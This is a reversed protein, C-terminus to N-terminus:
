MTSLWSLYWAIMAWTWSLEVDWRSPTELAPSGGFIDMLDRLFSRDFVSFRKVRGPSDASLLDVQSLSLSRRNTILHHSDWRWQNGTKGWTSIEWEAGSGYLVTLNDEDICNRKFHFIATMKPFKRNFLENNKKWIKKWVKAKENSRSHRFGLTWVSVSWLFEPFKQPKWLFQRLTFLKNNIIALLIRLPRPLLSGARPTLLESSIFDETWNLKDNQPWILEVESM